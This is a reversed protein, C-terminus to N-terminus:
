KAEGPRKSTQSRSFKIRQLTYGALFFRVIEMNRSLFIGDKSIQKEFLTHDATLGHLFVLTVNTDGCKNYWYFISGQDTVLRKREMMEFISTEM